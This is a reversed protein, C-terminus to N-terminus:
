DAADPRELVDLLAAGDDLDVGPQLGGKGFTPLDLRAAARGRKRSLAARLSEEIVATLTRNSDIAARKARALLDDPLHITTRM